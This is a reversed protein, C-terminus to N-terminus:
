PGVVVYRGAGRRSECLCRSVRWDRGSRALRCEFHFYEQVSRHVHVRMTAVASGEWEIEDAAVILAVSQTDHHVFGPGGPSCASLPVIRRRQPNLTELLRSPGDFRSTSRFRNNDVAAGVNRMRNGTGICIVAAGVDRLYENLGDLVHNLVVEQVYLEPDPQAPAGEEGGSTACGVGWLAALSLVMHRGNM